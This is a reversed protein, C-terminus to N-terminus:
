NFLGGPVMFNVAAWLFMFMFLGILANTIIDKGQKAKNADGDSAMYTIGGFIIGIVVAIGVGAALFNIVWLLIATVGGGNATNGCHFNVSTKIDQDSGDKGCTADAAYATGAMPVCLTVSVALVTLVALVIPMKKM